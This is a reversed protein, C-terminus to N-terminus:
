YVRAGLVVEGNPQGAKLLVARKVSSKGHKRRRTVRTVPEEVRLRLKVPSRKGHKALNEACLDAAGIAVTRVRNKSSSLAQKALYRLPIGTLAGALPTALLDAAESTAIKFMAAGLFSMFDAVQRDSAPESVTLEIGFPGEVKEKFLIREVWPKTVLSVSKGTLDVAKVAIREAIAPRPWILRFTILHTSGKNGKAGTVDLSLKDLTLEFIQRKM